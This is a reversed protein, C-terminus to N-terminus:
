TRRDGTLHDLGAAARDDGGADRGGSLDMDAVHSLHQRGFRDEARELIGARAFHLQLPCELLGLRIVSRDAAIQGLLANIQEPSAATFRCDFEEAPPLGQESM